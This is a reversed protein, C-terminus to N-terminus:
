SRRGQQLWRPQQRRRSWVRSTVDDLMCEQLNQLWEAINETRVAKQLETLRSLLGEPHVPAKPDLEVDESVVDQTWDGIRGCEEALLEILVVEVKKRSM